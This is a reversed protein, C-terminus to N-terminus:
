VMLLTLQAILETALRLQRAVIKPRWGESFLFLFGTFDTTITRLRLTGADESLKHTFLYTNIEVLLEQHGCTLIESVLLWATNCEM